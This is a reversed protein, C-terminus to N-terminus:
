PTLTVTLNRLITQDEKSLSGPAWSTQEPAVDGLVHVIELAAAYAGKESQHHGDPAYLGTVGAKQAARWLRGVRAVSGGFSQALDDYAAEIVWTAFGSLQLTRWKGPAWHAYLIVRAGGQTATRGLENVADRMVRRNSLSFPMWSADQLVVADWGGQELTAIAKDLQDELTAGNRAIRTTEYLVPSTASAAIQAVQRDVDHRLVYSNGVFLLRRIEQAPAMQAVTLAVVLCVGFVLASPHRAKWSLEDRAIHLVSLGM